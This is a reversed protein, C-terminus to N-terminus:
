RKWPELGRQAPSECVVQMAEGQHCMALNQHMLQVYQQLPWSGSLIWPTEGRHYHRPLTQWALVDDLCVQSNPTLADRGHQHATKAYGLTHPPLDLAATAKASWESSTGSDQM